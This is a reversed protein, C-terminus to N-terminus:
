SGVTSTIGGSVNNYKLETLLGVLGRSRSVFDWGYGFRLLDWKLAANPAINVPFTRGHFTITRQLTADQNYRIPVFSLRIKHKRRPKFTGRFEPFRRDEIGFENVFDIQDVGVAGLADTSLTLEPSPNWFMAALEVHFDEGPPVTPGAAFQADASHAGLLLVVVIPLPISLRIQM